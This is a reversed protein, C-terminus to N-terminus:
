PPPPNPSTVKVRTRNDVADHEYETKVLNNVTGSREVKVVRGHADYTYTMTEVALAPGSVFSAVLGFLILRRMAEDEGQKFWFSCLM